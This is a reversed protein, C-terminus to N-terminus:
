SSGSELGLGDLLQVAEVAVVDLEAEGPRVEGTGEVVVVAELGQWLGGGRQRSKGGPGGEDGDVGLVAPDQLDAQVDDLIVLRVLDPLGLVPQRRQAPLELADEVEPGDVALHM